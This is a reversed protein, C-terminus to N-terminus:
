SYLFIYLKLLYNVQLLWLFLLEAVACNPENM